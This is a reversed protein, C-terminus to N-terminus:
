DNRREVLPVTSPTPTSPADGTGGGRRIARLAAFWQRESRWITLLTVAVCIIGITIHIIVNRWQLVGSGGSGNTGNVSKFMHGSGYIIMTSIVLAIIVMPQFVTSRIMARFHTARTVNNNYALFRAIFVLSYIIRALMNIGNAALLGIGGYPSLLACM